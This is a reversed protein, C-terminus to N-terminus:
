RGLLIVAAVALMIDGLLSGSFAEGLAALVGEGLGWFDAPRFTLCFFVVLFFHLFRVELFFLRLFDLSERDTSASDDEVDDFESKLKVEDEDEDESLSSSLDSSSTSTCSGEPALLEESSAMM